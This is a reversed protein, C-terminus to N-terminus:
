GVKYCLIINEVHADIKNGTGNNKLITKNM